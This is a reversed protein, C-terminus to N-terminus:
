LRMLALVTGFAIDGLTAIVTLQVSFIFGSLVFKSLMDWTIFSFDLNFM